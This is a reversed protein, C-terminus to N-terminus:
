KNTHYSRVETVVNVINQKSKLKYDVKIVNTMLIGLYSGINNTIDVVSFIFIIQDVKFM